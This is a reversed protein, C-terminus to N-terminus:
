FLQQCHYFMPTYYVYQFLIQLFCIYMLRSIFIFVKLVVIVTKLVTAFLIAIVSPPNKDVYFYCKLRVVFVWFRFSSPKKTRSSRFHDKVIQFTTNIDRLEFPLANAQYAFPLRITVSRSLWNQPRLEHYPSCKNQLCSTIPEVGIPEM